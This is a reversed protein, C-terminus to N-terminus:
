RKRLAMRGASKMGVRYTVVFLVAFSASALMAATHSTMLLVGAIQPAVFLPILVLTTIPNAMHRKNRGLWRIEIMRLALQHFHLRDPQDTPRGSHVRRWIALLTDSIPWFFVLLIAFPSIQPALNTLGISCWVLTHGLLYAGADGLFLKGLPFNLVLFGLVAFIAM